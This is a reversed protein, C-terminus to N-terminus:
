LFEGCRKLAARNLVELELLGSRDNRASPDNAGPSVPIQRIVELTEQWVELTEVQIMAVAMVAM